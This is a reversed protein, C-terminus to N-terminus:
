IRKDRHRFISKENNSEKLIGKLNKYMHNEDISILGLRKYMSTLRKIYQNRSEITDKESENSFDAVQCYVTDAKVGITGIFQEINNILWDAIGMKRYEPKVFIRDLLIYTKKDNRSKAILKSLFEEYKYNDFLEASPMITIINMYAIIYKNQKIADPGFNSELYKHITSRLLENDENKSVGVLLVKTVILSKNISQKKCLTDFDLDKVSIPTDYPQTWMKLILDDFYGTALIKNIEM